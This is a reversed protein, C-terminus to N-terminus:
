QLCPNVHGFPGFVRAFGSRFFAFVGNQRLLFRSPSWFAADRTAGFQVVGGLLIATHETFEWRLKQQSAGFPFLVKKWEYQSVQSRGFEQRVISGPSFAELTWNRAKQTVSLAEQHGTRCVAAVM